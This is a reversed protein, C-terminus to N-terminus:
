GHTARVEHQRATNQVEERAFYVVVLVSPYGRVHDESYGLPWKVDDHLVVQARGGVGKLKALQERHTRACASPALNDFAIGSDPDNVDPTNFELIMNLAHFEPMHIHAAGDGSFWRGLKPFELAQNCSPMAALSEWVAQKEAQSGFPLGM